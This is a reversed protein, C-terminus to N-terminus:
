VKRPYPFLRNGLKNVDKQYIIFKSYPLISGSDVCLFDVLRKNILAKLSIPRLVYVDM